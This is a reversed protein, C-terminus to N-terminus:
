ADGGPRNEIITVNLVKAVAALFEARSLDCSVMTDSKERRANLQVLGPGIHPQLEAIRLNTTPSYFDWLTVSEDVRRQMEARIAADHAASIDAGHHPCERDNCGDITPPPLISAM